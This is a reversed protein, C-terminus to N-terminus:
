PKEKARNPYLEFILREVANNFRQDPHDICYKVLWADISDLDKGNVIDFTDPTYMNYATLFGDLWQNYQNQLGFHGQNASDMAAKFNKCTSFNFDKITMFYPRFYGSESAAWCGIPLLLVTALLFRKM